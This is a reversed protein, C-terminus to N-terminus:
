NQKTLATSQRLRQLAAAAVVKQKAADIWGDAARTIEDPLESLNLIAQDFDGAQVAAEARSVIAGASDGETADAPRVNIANKARAGLKGILGTAEATGAAAIIERAADPFAAKLSQTTAVGSSAFGSLDELAAHDSFYRGALDLQNTFEGGREIADQLANLAIIASLQDMNGDSRSERLAALEAKLSAVESEISTNQLSKTADLDNRLDAIEEALAASRAREIELAESLTATQSEMAAKLEAIENQLPANDIKATVTAPLPEVSQEDIVDADAELPAPDEDAEPTFGLVSSADEAQEGGLEDEVGTADNGVVESDDIVDTDIDETHRKDIDGQLVKEDNPANMIEPDVIAKDEGGGVPPLFVGNNPPSMSNKLEEPRDIDDNSIKSPRDSGPLLPEAPAANNMEDGPRGPPESNEPPTQEPASAPSEDTTVANDTPSPTEVASPAPAPADLVVSADNVPPTDSNGGTLRWVAFVALVVIVFVIFLIVGPTLTSPRREPASANTDDAATANLDGEDFTSRKDDDEVIEAEVEPIIDAKDADDAAGPESAAGIAEEADKKDDSM